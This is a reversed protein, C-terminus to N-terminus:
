KLQPFPNLTQDKKSWLAKDFTRVREITKGLQNSVYRKQKKCGIITLIFITSLFLINFNKM